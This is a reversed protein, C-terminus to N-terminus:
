FARMIYWFLNSPLRSAFLEEMDSSWDYANDAIDEGIEMLERESLGGIMQAKGASIPNPKPDAAYQVALTCIKVGMSRVSVDDLDLSLLDKNAELSGSADLAFLNLGSSDVSVNWQFNESKGKPNFSMESSVRALTDGNQRVRVTTEDTYSGGKMGHDGSSQVEVSIDEYRNSLELTVSFDDVYEKKGGLCVTLEMDVDEIRDEYLLASLYGNSLCADFELDGSIMDRLEETLEGYVDMEDLENLIDERVDRPTGIAQLLEECFDYYDVASLVEGVDRVYQKLAAKPVTIHYVTTKTSSGNLDLTKEGTKKVEAEKWLTKAADQIGQKMTETDIQDLVLDVLDFINFSLSKVSSDGSLKALDAGLTETNVGYFDGGTFEQSAFSIEDDDAAAQFSLLSDSGWHAELDMSMKRAKGDYDSGMRLGLGKLASLDYGVMESNTSQLELGFQQHFARNKQWKEIEPMGLKKEAAQYASVSKSLAKEVKGKPSAFLGSVSVVLLAIVVVAAVAGGALLVPLKVGTKKGGGASTGRASGGDTGSDNLAGCNPCFRDDDRMQSGCNQCFM